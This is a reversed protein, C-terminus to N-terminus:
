VHARGIESGAGGNNGQGSTGTGGGGGNRGGGGSGGSGGAPTGGVGAGYGGGIATSGFAVSNAGQTGNYTGSASTGGAGGAGVTITYVTSGTLTNTGSIVGGGGGGGAARDAYQTRGGGGGGAVIIYSATYTGSKIATWSGLLYGELVGGTTNYRIMGNTPSSPRQATNGVPVTFTGTGNCTLNQSNDITLAATSNTQFQLNGSTDATEILGASSANITTTM